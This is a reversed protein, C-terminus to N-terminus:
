MAFTTGEGDAPAPTESITPLVYTRCRERV